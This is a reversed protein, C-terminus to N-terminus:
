FWKKGGALVDNLANTFHATSEAFERGVQACFVDYQHAIADRFLEKLTGQNLGKDRLHPASSVMDSVLTRALRRAAPHPDVAPAAPPVPAPPAPPPSAPISHAPALPAPSMGVASLPPRPVMPSPAAALSAGMAHQLAPLAFVPPAVRDTLTASVSLVGGCRSCRARVGVTPVKSPDVRYVSRCEPCSVNM